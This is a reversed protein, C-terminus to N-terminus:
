LELKLTFKQLFVVMKTKKWIEVFDCFEVNQCGNVTLHNSFIGKFHNGFDTFFFNKQRSLM